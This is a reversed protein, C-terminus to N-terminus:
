TLQESVSRMAFFMEVAIQQSREDYRASELPTDDAEKPDRYHLAIRADAGSVIPCREDADSCCMMAGYEKTPNGDENYVKSFLQIPPQRDSFAALYIPNHGGSTAVVSVGSRRLSNVTRINCATAETGGSFTEVGLVGYYSAAAQCWLQGFHSRRSNHTCIFTLRATHGLRKRGVVYAALESLLDQRDRPLSEINAEVSAVFDSTTELLLHSTPM